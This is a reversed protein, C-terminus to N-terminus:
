ENIWGWAICGQRHDLDIKPKGREDLDGVRAKNGMISVLEEGHAIFNYAWLPILWQNDDWNGFGLRVLDIREVTKLDSVTIFRKFPAYMVDDVNSWVTRAERRSFEDSWSEYASIEATKTAMNFMILYLYDVVTMSEIITDRKTTDHM